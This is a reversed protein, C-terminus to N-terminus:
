GVREIMKTSPITALQKYNFNGNSLIAVYIPYEYYGVPVDNLPHSILGSHRLMPNIVDITYTFGFNINKM